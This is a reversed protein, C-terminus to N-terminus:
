YINYIKKNNQRRYHELIYFFVLRKKLVDGHESTNCIYM